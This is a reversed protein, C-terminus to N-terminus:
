WDGIRLLKQGSSEFLTGAEALKSGDPFKAEPDIELLPLIAFARERIRPHPVSLTLTNIVSDDYLLIDIDIVRPGWHFTPKRGELKEVAQTAGLLEVPTFDTKVQAVINLYDPVPTSTEGVPSTEYIGSVATVCIFESQLLSVASRLHEERNDLNSGLSLYATGM